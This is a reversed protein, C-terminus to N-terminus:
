TDRNRIFVHMVDMYSLDVRKAKAKGRKPQNARLGGTAALPDAAGFVQGRRKVPKGRAFGPVSGTQTPQPVVPPPPIVTIQLPSFVAVSTLDLPQQPQVIITSLLPSGVVVTAGRFPAFVASGTVDQPAYFYQFVAM